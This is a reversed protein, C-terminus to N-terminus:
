LDAILNSIRKRGEAVADKSSTRDEVQKLEAELFAKASGNGNTEDIHKLAQQLLIYNWGNPIAREGAEM